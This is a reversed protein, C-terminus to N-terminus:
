GGEKESSIRNDLMNSVDKRDNLSRPNVVKAEPTKLAHKCPNYHEQDRSKSIHLDTNRWHVSDENFFEMRPNRYLCLQLYGSEIRGADEYSIM